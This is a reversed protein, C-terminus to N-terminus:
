ECSIKQQITEAIRWNKGSAKQACLTLSFELCQEKTYNNYATKMVWM